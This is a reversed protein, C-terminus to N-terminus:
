KLFLETFVNYGTAPDQYSEKGEEVFGRHLEEIDAPLPPKKRETM